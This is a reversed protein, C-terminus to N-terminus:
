KKKGLPSGSASPTPLVNFNKPGKEAWILYMVTYGPTCYVDNAKFAGVAPPKRFDDEVEGPEADGRGLAYGHKPWEKLVLKIFDRTGTDMAFLARKYGGVPPLNKYAYIDDPLPLDKPVWDPFPAPKPKKCQQIGATVQPTPAITSTVSSPSGSARDAAPDSKGACSGLVLAVCAVVVGLAANKTTM